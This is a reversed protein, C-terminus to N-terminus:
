RGAREKAEIEVRKGSGKAATASDKRGKGVEFPNLEEGEV